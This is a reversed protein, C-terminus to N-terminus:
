FNRLKKKNNNCRPKLFHKALTLIEIVGVLVVYVSVSALYYMLLTNFDTFTM